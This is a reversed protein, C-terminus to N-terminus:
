KPKQIAVIVVTLVIDRTPDEPKGFIARIRTEGEMKVDRKYAPHEQIAAMAATVVGTTDQNRSFIVLATKTDRYTVYGFLQDIAESFHKQGHWIKCEGVFLNINKDRVLIDTHGNSNFTEGTASGEYQGNLQVLYHDRITEEDAAFFVRPNREMVFSMSEIIRLINQYEAELITPEPQYTCTATTLAPPIKRRNLPSVYTMPAGSRHQLPFGIASAIDRAKLIRNRRGMVIRTAEAERSANFPDLQLAQFGIYKRIKEIEADFSAKLEEPPVGDDVVVRNITLSGQMGQSNQRSISPKNLDHTDPQHNLLGSAGVYPVDISYVYGDNPVKLPPFITRLYEVPAAQVPDGLVLPPLYAEDALQHIMDEPSAQLFADDHFQDVFEQMKGIQDKLLTALNRQSFLPDHQPTLLTM